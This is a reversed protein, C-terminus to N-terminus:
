ALIGADFAVTALAFLDEGTEIEKDVVSAKWLEDFFLKSGPHYDFVYSTPNRNYKYAIIGLSSGSLGFARQISVDKLSDKVKAISIKNVIDMMKKTKEVVKEEYGSFIENEIQLATEYKSPRVYTLTLYPIDEDRPSHDILVVRYKKYKGGLFLYEVEKRYLTGNKDPM